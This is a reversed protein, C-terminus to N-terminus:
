KTLNKQKIVKRNKTKPDFQARKLVKLSNKPNPHLGFHKKPNICISYGRKNESYQEIAARNHLKSNTHHIIPLLQTPLECGNSQRLGVTTKTTKTNPKQNNNPQSLFM